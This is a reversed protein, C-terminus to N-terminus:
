LAIFCRDQRDHSRRFAASTPVCAAEFREYREQVEAPLNAV